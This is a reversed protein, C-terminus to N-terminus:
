TFNLFDSFDVCKITRKFANLTAFDVTNSPLCNWINVVRIIFKPLMYFM